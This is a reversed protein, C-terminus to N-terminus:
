LTPWAMSGRSVRPPIRGQRKWSRNAGGEKARPRMVRIEVERTVNSEGGKEFRRQRGRILVDTVANLTWGPSGFYPREHSCKLGVRTIWFLRRM